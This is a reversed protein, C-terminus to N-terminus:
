RGPPMLQDHFFTLIKDLAARTPNGPSDVFETTLVAHAKGTFGHPNGPRSDIEAFDIQGGLAQRLAAARRSPSISDESFRFALIHVQSAEVAALDAPSIGLAAKADDTLAIVPLSPEALVPAAVGPDAMLALPLSGTLCLGIVGIREGHLTRIHKALIRLRKVIPGADHESFCNFGAGFCARVGNWSSHDGPQGFLLPVYVAYGATAVRRALLLDDVTMGPLEHLILVGPGEGKKLILFGGNDAAPQIKQFSAILGAADVTSHSHGGHASCAAVIVTLGLLAAWRRCRRVQEKWHM